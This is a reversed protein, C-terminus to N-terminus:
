VSFITTRPCRQQRRRFHLNSLTLLYIETKDNNRRVYTQMRAINCLDKISRM